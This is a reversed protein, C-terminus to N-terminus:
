TNSIFGYVRWSFHGTFERRPSPALIHRGARPQGATPLHSVLFYNSVAIESYSLLETTWPTTANFKTSNETIIRYYRLARIHENDIISWGENFFIQMLRKKKKEKRKVLSPLFFWPWKHFPATNHILVDNYLDSLRPIILSTVTQKWFKTQPLLKLQINLM